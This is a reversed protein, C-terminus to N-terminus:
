CFGSPGGSGRQVMRLNRWACGVTLVNLYVQMVCSHDGGSAQVDLILFAHM